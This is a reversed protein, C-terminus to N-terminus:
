LLRYIPNQVNYSLYMTGSMDREKVFDCKYDIAHKCEFSNHFNREADSIYPFKTVNDWKCAFSYALVLSEQEKEVNASKNQSCASFISLVLFYVIFKNM